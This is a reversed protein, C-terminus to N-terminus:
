STVDDADIKRGIVYLLTSGQWFWPMIVHKVGTKEWLEKAKAEAEAQPYMPPNSTAKAAALTAPRLRPREIM